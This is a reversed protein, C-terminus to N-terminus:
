ATKSRRLTARDEEPIQWPHANPSWDDLTQTPKYNPCIFKLLAKFIDILEDRSGGPDREVHDAMSSGDEGKIQEFLKLRLLATLISGPDIADVDGKEQQDEDVFAALCVELPSCQRLNSFYYATNSDYGKANIDNDFEQLRETIKIKVSQSASAPIKMMFRRSGEIAEDYKSNPQSDYYSGPELGLIGRVEEPMVWTFYDSRTFGLCYEPAGPAAPAGPAGVAGLATRRSEISWETNEGVPGEPLWYVRLQNSDVTIPASTTM